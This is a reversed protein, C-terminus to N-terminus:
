AVRTISVSSGSKITANGTSATAHFTINQSTRVSRIIEVPISQPSVVSYMGNVGSWITSGGLKATITVDPNTATTAVILRADIRYIGYDYGVNIYAGASSGSTFTYFDEQSDGDRCVSRMLTTEETTVDYGFDSTTATNSDAEVYIYIFDSHVHPIHQNGTNANLGSTINAVTYATSAEIFGCPMVGGNTGSVMISGSVEMGNRFTTDCSPGASFVDSVIASPTISEWGSLNLSRPGQTYTTIDQLRIGGLTVYNGDNRKIENARISAGGTAYMTLSSEFSTAATAGAAGTEPDTYLAAPNFFMGPIGPALPTTGIPMPEPRFGGSGGIQTASRFVLVNKEALPGTLPFIGDPSVTADAWVPTGGDAGTTDRWKDAAGGTGVAGQDGQSGQSGQGGQAGVAGVAGADGATGVAGADGATGVAGAAGATGVAGADGATGVAGAAGTDGQIGPSGQGGQVGVAGPAGQVGATGIAGAAGATGVPGATGAIGANGQIGLPGQPGVAGGQAGTLVACLYEDEPLEVFSVEGDISSLVLPPYGETCAM